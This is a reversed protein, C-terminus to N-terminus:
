EPCTTLAQWGAYAAWTGAAAEVEAVAADALSQERINVFLLSSNGADFRRREAEALETMVALSERALRFNEQAMRNASVTDALATRLEDEALRLEERAARLEARAADLNGRDSRLLLPMRFNLGAEFVTGDLSQDDTPGFDRSVGFSADLQPGRRARALDVKTELQRVKARLAMLTPACEVVRQFTAAPDGLEPPAGDVAGQPLREPPPPDPNGRGDRHFLGLVLASAELSRQAAALKQQRSLLSRRAELGEIPAVAGVEIRRQIQDIRTEALALIERTVELQRGSAVWKWYSETAKQQVSLWTYRQTETAADIGDEAIRRGARRYDLPGDRWIPITLGARLEGRSLTDDSYYSPYDVPPDNVDRGYRYGAYVTAGWVPTPQYVEVDVRRLDYYGGTTLKARASLLPDFAGRAAMLEAEAVDVRALAAEVRPHHARASELVEPLELPQQAAAPVALTVLLTLALRIM